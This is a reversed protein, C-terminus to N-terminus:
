SKKWRASLLPTKSQPFAGSKRKGPNLTDLLTSYLEIKTGPIQAENVVM